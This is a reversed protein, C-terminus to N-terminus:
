AYCQAAFIVWFVLLVLHMLLVFINIRTGTAEASSRRCLRETADPSKRSGRPRVEVMTFVDIHSYSVYLFM